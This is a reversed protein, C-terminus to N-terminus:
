MKELVVMVVMVQNVTKVLLVLVVEVVVQDQDLMVQEVLLVLDMPEPIEQKVRNLLLQVLEVMKVMVVVVQVVLEVM